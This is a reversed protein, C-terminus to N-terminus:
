ADKHIKKQSRFLQMHHLTPSHGSSTVAASDFGTPKQNVM